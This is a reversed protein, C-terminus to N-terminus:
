SHYEKRRAPNRRPHDSPRPQGRPRVRDSGGSSRQALYFNLKQNIEGKRFLSNVTTVFSMKREKKQIRYLMITGDPITFWHRVLIAIGDRSCGIMLVHVMMVLHVVTKDILMSRKVRGDIAAMM